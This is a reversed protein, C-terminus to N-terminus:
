VPVKELLGTVPNLITKTKVPTPTTSSVVSTSSNVPVKELLGTSPNLVTTTKIQTSSPPQEQTQTPSQTPTSLKSSIKEAAQVSPNANLVSSVDSGQPVYSSFPNGGTYPAYAKEEENLKKNYLTQSQYEKKGKTLDNKESYLQKYLSSQFNGQDNIVMNRYLILEDNPLDPYLKRLNELSFFQKTEDDPVLGWLKAKEPDSAVFANIQEPSGYNILYARQQMEEDTLNEQRIREDARRINQLQKDVMEQSLGTGSIGRQQAGSLIEQLQGWAAQANDSLNIGLKKNINEKLLNWSYDAAAKQQNTTADAKQMMIDYYAAAVNEMEAKFEPSNIDIPPILTNFANTSIQFLPLDFISSDVSSMNSASLIPDNTSKMGEDTNKWEDSPINNDFAKFNQYQTNGNNALEKAKADRFIDGLSYGGYLTANVYKAMLNSDKTITDFTQQSIDGSNKATTLFTGILNGVKVEESPDSKEKGYLNNNGNASVDDPVEIYTGDNKIIYTDPLITGQMEESDKSSSPIINILKETEAITKNFYKSVAEISEAPKYTQNNKNYIYLISSDDDSFDVIFENGRETNIPKGSTDVNQTAETKKVWQGGIKEYLTPLYSKWSEGLGYNFNNIDTETIPSGNLISNLRNYLQQKQTDNLGSSFQLMSPYSTTTQQVPPSTPTPNVIPQSPTITQQNQIVQKDSPLYSKWSSGLGYNFNDIDTQTIPSGNKIANLRNVLSIKQSDSLGSTFSLSSPYSNTNMTSTSTTANIDPRGSNMWTTMEAQTPERGYKTKFARSYADTSMAM